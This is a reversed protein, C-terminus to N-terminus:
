KSQGLKTEVKKRTNGASKVAHRVEDSSVGTKRAEYKVEHDARDQSKGRTTSTKAM